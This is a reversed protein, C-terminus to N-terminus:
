KILVSSLGRGDHSVSMMSENKLKRKNM